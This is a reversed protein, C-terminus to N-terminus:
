AALAAGGAPLVLEARLGGGHRNSLSVSGGHQRVIQRVIALGLGVGGTERSRSGEVRYFPEFVRELEVAPLGPGFDDIQVCISGDDREFLRVQARQGYKLANDILNGLARRLAQAQGVCALQTPTSLELEAGQERLDEVLSELLAVMDISARPEPNAQGHLFDLAGGLMDQMEDLDRLMRQRLDADRLLEARLRLRTVPTHLDHSVAALFREREEIQARIRQQMANFARAASRVESPGNEPLPPQRLDQGLAAAAQALRSLPRVTMRAMFWTLALVLALLLGLHLLLREPWAIRDEPANAQVQLWHGDHLQLYLEFDFGRPGPLRRAVIAREPGVAAQLRRMFPAGQGAEPLPATALVALRHRPTSLDQALRQRAGADTQRDLAGHVSAIRQVFQRGVHERLAAQRESLFLAVALLQLLLLAAVLLLLLRGFLTQPWLSLRRM